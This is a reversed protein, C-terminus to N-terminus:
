HIFINKSEIPQSDTYQGHDIDLISSVTQTVVEPLVINTYQAVFEQFAGEKINSQFETSQRITFITTEYIATQLNSSYLIQTNDQTPTSNRPINNTLTLTIVNVEMSSAVSTSPYIKTSTVIKMNSSIYESSRGNIYMDNITSYSQSTGYSQQTTIKQSTELTLLYLISNMTTSTTEYFSTSRQLPVVTEETLLTTKSKDQWLYSISSFKFKDISSKKPMPLSFITSTDIIQDISTTLQGLTYSYESKYRDFPLNSLYLSSTKHFHTTSKIETTSYLMARSNELMPVENSTALISTYQDHITRLLTSVDTKSTTISIWTSKTEDMYPMTTSVITTMSNSTVLNQSTFASSLPGDITISQNSSYSQNIVNQTVENASTIGLTSIGLTSQVERSTKILTKSTNNTIQDALYTSKDTSPITSKITTLYVFSTDQFNTTISTIGGATTASQGSSTSSSVDMKSTGVDTTTILYTTTISIQNYLSTTYISTILISESKITTTLLKSSILISTTYTTYPTTQFFTSDLITLSTTAYGTSVTGFNVTTVYPPGSKSITQTTRTTMSSIPRRTTPNSKYYFFSDIGLLCNNMCSGLATQSLCEEYLTILFILCLKYMKMINVMNSLNSFLLM